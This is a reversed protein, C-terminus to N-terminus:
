QVDEETMTLDLPRNYRGFKMSVVKCLIGRYGSIVPM